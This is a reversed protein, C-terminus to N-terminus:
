RRGEPGLVIGLAFAAVAVLITMGAGRVMEDGWGSDGWALLSLAETM